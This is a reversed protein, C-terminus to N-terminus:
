NEATAPIPQDTFSVDLLELCERDGTARVWAREWRPARVLTATRRETIVQGYPVRIPSGHVEVRDGPEIDLVGDLEVHAGLREFCHSVEVTCEVEIRRPFIWNDNKM